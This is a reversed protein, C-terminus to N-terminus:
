QPRLIMYCNQAANERAEGKEGGHGQAYPVDDVSSLSTLTRWM